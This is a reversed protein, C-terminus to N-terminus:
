PRWAPHYDAAPDTTLQTLSGGNRMMMWIDENGDRKRGFVLWWSDASFRAGEVPTVQDNVPFVDATNVGVQRSALPPLGTGLNFVIVSDDPAWDPANAVGSATQTFAQPNSGDANMLWITSSGSRTTEYALRSGDPSWAPRREYVTPPSLRVVSNDALSYLYIQDKGDRLSTFAITQGDPSWAPDFDGGPRSALPTLGKGDANVIFMSSGPYSDKKGKCPSVFVLRQGDPSWDPQCAGDPLSTIQRYNEGTLNMIWLQPTGGRESVFAIEGGAGGLATAAVTPEVTDTPAPTETPAVTETPTPTETFPQPTLTETPATTAIVVPAQTRTPETAAPRTLNPLILALVVAIVALAGFGGGILGWPAARRAPQAAEPLPTAPQISPLGGSTQARRITEEANAQVPGVLDAMFEAASQYRENPMVEMAKEIVRATRESVAPAHKRIPTLQASGMARALGDEPIKGTLAAYLTAGLAYIDSRAETGEGYQEPPAYGPTLAQAGTTTAQGAEAIKALGFDVLYVVGSTSVKVNGPKVDRHVIAPKRSHLYELADCVAAGIRVVETEPLQGRDALIQRLDDGDIYDMVLYQGVGELSFHDTVRPLNPHRMGALLSAERRFQRAFQESTLFNEKVAVSINLTVDFARYIAGMGGKAIVEEIRYRDNLLSGPELAM